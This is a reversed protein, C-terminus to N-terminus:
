EYEITAPPKDTIDYLVRVVQPIEDTIRKSVQRLFDEQFAYWSAEKADESVVGRIFIPYAFAREDNIKGVVKFDPIAVFYQWVDYTLQAKAVEDRFIYDAEKLIALREETVEGLVRVGLGPGPFPQRAVMAENLGLERGVARVDAKYLDRLPEVLEFNVDDPLGGVNHHSKVLKSGEKGSEEIDPAITGQVLFDHDALKAQEEEFVRIFEEGIIKRKTEPDAVGKLKSLFRDKANVAVLNVDFQQNFVEQVEEPEGKRMLGHDVFVCTLNSGIAQSVLAACVSSDVGGSLALIAKKDGITEKITQVSQDIFTKVDM